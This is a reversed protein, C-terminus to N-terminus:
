REIPSAHVAALRSMEDATLNFAFIDLDEQVYEPKRASSVAAIGQQVVWRLAVQAASVNHAAAVALVTPDHLVDVQTWGGLPSYAMYAVGAARSAVVTADDRGWLTQDHGAISFGNQNVAPKVSAADLLRNLASANFNSVGIARTKGTAVLPEMARWLKLTDEWEDCPWHMLMLDVREMGLVRLSHEVDATANHGSCEHAYPFPFRRAPCCPIKSTVFFADRPLGSARVAEGVNVMDADGYSLATDLGRGGSEIWLTRNSVGDSILPLDVGPGIPVTPVLAAAVASLLHIM